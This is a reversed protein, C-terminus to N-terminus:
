LWGAAAAVNWGRSSTRPATESVCTDVRGNSEGVRKRLRALAGLLLLGLLLEAVDRVLANSMCGKTRRLQM